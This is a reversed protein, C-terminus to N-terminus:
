FVGSPRPAERSHAQCNKQFGTGEKNLKFNVPALECQLDTFKGAFGVVSVVSKLSHPLSAHVHACAPMM